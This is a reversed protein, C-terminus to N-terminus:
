GELLRIATSKGAGNPGLLCVRSGAAISWSVNDLALTGSRFRKSVSSFALAAPAAVPQPATQLDVSEQRPVAITKM